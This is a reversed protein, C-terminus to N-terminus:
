MTQEGPALTDLDHTCNDIVDLNSSPGPTRIDLSLLYAM